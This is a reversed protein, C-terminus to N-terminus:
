ERRFLVLSAVILSVVVLPLIVWMIPTFKSGLDSQGEVTHPVVLYGGYLDNNNYTAYLGSGSAASYDVKELTPYDDIGTGNITVTASDSTGNILATGNFFFMNTGSKISYYVDKADSITISGGSTVWLDSYDGTASAYFCVNDYTWSVSTPTTTSNSYTINSISVTKTELDIALDFGNVYGVTSATSGSVYMINCTSTNLMSIAGNDSWIIARNSLGTVNEGNVTYTGSSLSGSVDATVKSSFHGDINTYTAYTEDNALDLSPVLVGAIVIIAVTLTIVLTLVKNDM